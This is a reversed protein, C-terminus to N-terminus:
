RRVVTRVAENLNLATRHALIDVLVGVVAEVRLSSRGKGTVERMGWQVKVIM